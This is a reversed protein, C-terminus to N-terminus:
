SLTGIGAAVAMGEVEGVKALGLFTKGLPRGEQFIGRNKGNGQLM